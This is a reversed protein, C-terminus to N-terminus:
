ESNKSNARHFEVTKILFGATKDYSFPVTRGYIATWERNQPDWWVTPYNWVGETMNDEFVAEECLEPTGLRRLMRTRRAIKWDDFFLIIGM